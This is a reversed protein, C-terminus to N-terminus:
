WLFDNSRTIPLRRNHNPVRNTLTEVTVSDDPKNWNTNIPCTINQELMPNASNQKSISEIKWKLPVIPTAKSNSEVLRHIQTAIQKSLWEKGHKNLHMGHQTFYKRHLNSEIIMVNNYVKAKKNLKRNATQIELNTVSNRDM